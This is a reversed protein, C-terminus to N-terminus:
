AAVRESALAPSPQEFDAVLQVPHIRLVDCIAGLEDTNFAAKGKLKRNFTSYAIGTEDCVYNKTIEQQRIERALRNGVRDTLPNAM